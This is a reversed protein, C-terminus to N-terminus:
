VFLYVAYRNAITLGSKLCLPQLDPAAQLVVQEYGEALAHSLAKRGLATMIGQNRAEPTTGGSYLSAVQNQEDLFLTLSSVAKDGQKAMLHRISKPNKQYMKECCDVYLTMNQPQLGFSKALPEQWQNLQEKTYVWELTVESSLTYDLNLAKIDASMGCVDGFPHIKYDLLTNQTQLHAILPLNKGCHEVWWCFPLQREKFYSVMNEVEVVHTQHTESHIIMNFLPEPIKTAALLYENKNIIDGHTSEAALEWFRFINKAILQQM